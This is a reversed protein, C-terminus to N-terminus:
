APLNPTEITKRESSLDLISFQLECIKSNTIFFFNFYYISLHKIKSVSTIKMM